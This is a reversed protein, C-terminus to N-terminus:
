HYHDFMLFVLLQEYWLLIDWFYIDGGFFAGTELLKKILM